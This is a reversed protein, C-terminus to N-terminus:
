EEDEEVLEVREVDYPFHDRFHQLAEEYSAGWFRAERGGDFYFDYVQRM